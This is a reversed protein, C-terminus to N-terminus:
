PPKRYCIVGSRQVFEFPLGYRLLSEAVGLILHGPAHLLDHFQRALRETATHRFYILVNRCFILDHRGAATVEAPQALNICELRVRARLYPDVESVGGERPIVYRSSLEAPLGRLARERYLGARAATLVSPDVDSALIEIPGVGFCGARDLAMAMSYPEEGTSCAAHWIRIPRHQIRAQLEPVLEQAAVELAAPERWFYTENVTVAASVAPWEAEGQPDYRLLYYYDLFSALDHHAVRAELRDGLLGLNQDSFHM